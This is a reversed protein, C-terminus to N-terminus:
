DREVGEMIVKGEKKKKNLIIRKDIAEFPGKGDDHGLAALFGLVDAHNRMRLPFSAFSAIAIEIRFKRCLMINQKLRALVSAKTEKGMGLIRGFDICYIKKKEAMIKCLVPDLGSSRQKLRDKMRLSEFGFLVDIKRNQVVENIDNKSIDCFIIDANANGAAGIYLRIKFKKKLKEIQGNRVTDIREYLLCLSSFGLREAMAALKEENDRPVVIDIMLQLFLCHKIITKAKSLPEM